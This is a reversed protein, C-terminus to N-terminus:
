RTNGHRGAQESRYVNYGALDTEPSIGWSLELHAPVADQAPVYVVVLGQPTAASFHRPRPRRFSQFRRVRDPEDGYRVVSRVTYVYSKGFEFQTDLYSNTDIRGIKLIASHSQRSRDLLPTPPIKTTTSAPSVAPTTQQSEGRYVRYLAIPPAPGVPTKAAADLHHPYRLAHSRGELRRNPGSRSPHAARRCQFGGFQKKVSARTRVIYVASAIGPNRSIKRSFPMPMASAAKIPITVVVAAPITAHLSRPTGGAGSAKGPKRADNRPAPEFDRYIEITLPHDLPRHDM